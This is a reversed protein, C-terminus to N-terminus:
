IQKIDIKNVTDVVKIKDIRWDIHSHWRYRRIPETFQGNKLRHIMSKLKFRYIRLLKTYHSEIKFFQLNNLQWTMLNWITWLVQCKVDSDYCTVNDKMLNEIKCLHELHMGWGVYFNNELHCVDKPKWSPPSVSRSFWWYPVM